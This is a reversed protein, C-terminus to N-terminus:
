SNSAPKVQNKKAVVSPKKPTLNDSFHTNSQMLVQLHISARDVGSRDLLSSLQANESNAPAAQASETQVKESQGQPISLSAVAYANGCMLASLVSISFLSRLITKNLM